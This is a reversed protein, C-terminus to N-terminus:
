YNFKQERLEQGTNALRVFYMVFFPHAALDRALASMRVKSSALTAAQSRLWRM